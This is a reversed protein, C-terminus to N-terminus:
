QVALDVILPKHDSHRGKGEKIEVCRLEKSVLVHDLRLPPLPFVGNPFTTAFGRGTARHCDTLGAELLRKYWLAHQTANFDGALVLPTTSTKVTEVLLNMQKNWVQTYDDTRPPLPHVNIVLIEQGAFKLFARTMPLGHVDWVEAQSLPLSSFIATGFSDERVVGTRRPHGSMASQKRLADQWLPSYEQLLVLDADAEILEDIIPRPDPNIMLLNASFIRLREGDAVRSADNSFFSVDPLIWALHCVAVLGSVAILARRRLVVAVAVALYAPLYLYLTAANLWVLFMTQDHAVIRLAAAVLLPLSLFWAGFVIFRSLRPASSSSEAVPEAVHLLWRVLATM